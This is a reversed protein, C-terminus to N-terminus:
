EARADMDRRHLRAPLRVIAFPENGPNVPHAYASFAAITGSKADNCPMQTDCIHSEIMSVQVHFGLTLDEDTTRSRCDLELLLDDIIMSRYKRGHSLSSFRSQSVIVDNFPSFSIV